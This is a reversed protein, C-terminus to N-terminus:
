LLSQAFEQGCKELSNTWQEKSDYNFVTDYKAKFTLWSTNHNFPPRGLYESMLQDPAWGCLGVFLRYFMPRSGNALDELMTPTSSVSFRQDVQMTNSSSWDNSHLMCFSKQNVPGGIYVHGPLDLEVNCQTSFDKISLNSRKNLMLGLSGREHHETVLIVSKQWVGGQVSPPAILLSGPHILDDTM